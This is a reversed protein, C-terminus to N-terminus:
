REAAFREEDGRELGCYSASFPRRACMTQATRLPQRVVGNGASEADVALGDDQPSLAEGLGAEVSEAILRAGSAFRREGSFEDLADEICCKVLLGPRGRMPAGAGEGLVQADGLHGDLADPFRVSQLGM